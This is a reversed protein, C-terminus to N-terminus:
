MARWNRWNWFRDNIMRQLLRSLDAGAAAPDCGDHGAGCCIAGAPPAFSPLEYRIRLYGVTDRQYHIPTMRLEHEDFRLQAAVPAPLAPMVPAASNGRYTAFVAGDPRFVCALMVEPVSKMAALNEPPWRMTSISRLMLNLSLLDTKANLERTLRPQYTMQEYALMAVASACVAAGSTVWIARMLKRRLSSPSSGAPNMQRGRGQRIRTEAVGLMRSSIKWGPPQCADLNIEFRVTNRVLLLNIMGGDRLFRPSEGVTLVPQGAATGITRCIGTKARASICCSAPLRRSRCSCGAGAAAPRQQQPGAPVTSCRASRAGDWCACRCRSNDAGPWNVYRSFEAFLGGQNDYEAAWRRLLAKAAFWLAAAVM